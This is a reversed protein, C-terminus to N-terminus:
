AVSQNCIGGHTAIRIGIGFVIHGKEGTRTIRRKEFALRSDPHDPERVPESHKGLQQPEPEFGREIRQQYQPAEALGDFPDPSEHPGTALDIQVRPIRVHKRLEGVQRWM